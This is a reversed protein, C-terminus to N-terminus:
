AQKALLPWISSMLEQADVNSKLSAGFNPLGVEIVSGTGDTFAVIAASRDAIGAASVLVGAPPEIPQYRSFGTFATLEGFLDLHDELETILEGDTSAVPGRQAGFIDTAREVPKAARAAAGAYDSIESTGALTGTGLALVRGGHTVFGVLIKRLPEPLYASGDPLLVGWRDVLSPGEGEALALDTTLQYGLHESSLYKLLEVDDAFSAPFGNVIPRALSVADGAALTDPLGDGSDDVQSQGIWDLMPLAVLVRAHDGARGTASAVLAVRATRTGAKMFLEYLGAVRKPLKVTVTSEGSPGFGAALVKRTGARRLKWSFGSLPSDVPVAAHAGAKIPALPQTATLYRITVGSGDTTHASPPLTKPYTVQDCAADQATIGILYTGAPAPEDHIEGNWTATDRSPNVAFKDVLPPKGTVDTRYVDIWVRRYTARTYRIEVTGGTPPSLVATGAPTKAAAATASRPKGKTAKASSSKAKPRVLTVSLIRPRPFHTIVQLPATSLDISVGKRQFYLRFYYKGPPAIQGDTLRGDWTFTKLKTAGATMETGSSITAIVNGGPNRAQVIYVGVSDTHGVSFQVYSSRYDLPKGQSNICVRGLRTPNIASPTPQPHGFYLPNGVKLHQTLFFAGVTALALMAFAVAPL